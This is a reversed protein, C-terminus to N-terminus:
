YLNWIPQVADVGTKNCSLHFAYDVLAGSEASATRVELTTLNSINIEAHGNLNGFTSAVGVLGTTVIGVNLTGTFYSAGGVKSFNGNLWNLNPESVIGTSSVKAVLNVINVENFYYAKFILGTSDTYFAGVKRHILYGAPAQANTSAVLYAVGGSQVMYVYYFTSVAVSGADIGGLGSVTRDITMASTLTFFRGGVKVVSGAMLQAQNASIKVFNLIKETFIM